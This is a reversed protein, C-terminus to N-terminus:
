DLRENEWPDGKPEARKLEGPVWYEDLLDDVDGQGTPLGEMANRVNLVCVSHKETVGTLANIRERMEWGMGVVRLPVFGDNIVSRLTITQRTRFPKESGGKYRLIFRHKQREGM